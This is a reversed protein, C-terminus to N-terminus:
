IFSGSFDRPSDDPTKDHIKEKSINLVGLEEKMKVLYSTTFTATHNSVKDHHLFMKDMEYPYLRPLLVSFLLKLVYNVYYETNIKVGALVRLLTVTARGLKLLFLVKERKIIKVEGIFVIILIENKDDEDLSNFLSDLTISLYSVKNRKVTPIGIVIPASRNKNIEFKPKIINYSNKLHPLIEFVHPFKVYGQNESVNFENFIYKYNFYKLFRIKDKNTCSREKFFHLNDSVFLLFTTFFVCAVFLSYRNRRFIM